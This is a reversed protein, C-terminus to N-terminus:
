RRSAWGARGARGGAAPHEEPAAVGGRGLYIVLMFYAGTTQYAMYGNAGAHQADMPPLALASVVVDQAKALLLFVWFSLLLELPM